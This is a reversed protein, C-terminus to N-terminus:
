CAAGCAVYSGGRKDNVYAEGGRESGAVLM